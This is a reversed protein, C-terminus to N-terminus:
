ALAGLRLLQAAVLPDGLHRGAVQQALRHGLAGLEALAGLRRHIRTLQHGVFDHEPQDALPEAPGVRCLAEDEVAIRAVHRLGAREVLQEGDFSPSWHSL